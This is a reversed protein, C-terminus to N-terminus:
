IGDIADRIFKAVFLGSTGTRTPDFRLTGPLLGAASGSLESPTTADPLHVLRAQPSTALFWEVV